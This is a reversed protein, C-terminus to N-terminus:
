ETAAMPPMAAGPPWDGHTGVGPDDEAYYATLAMFAALAMRQRPTMAEIQRRVCAADPGTAHICAALGPLSSMARGLAQPDAPPLPLGQGHAPRAAPATLSACAAGILLLRPMPHTAPM